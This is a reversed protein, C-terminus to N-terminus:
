YVRRVGDVGRMIATQIVLVIFDNSAAVGTLLHMATIAFTALLYTICVGICLNESIPGSQENLIILRNPGKRCPQLLGKPARRRARGRLCCARAVSLCIDVRVLLGDRSMAVRPRPRRRRRPVPIDAKGVRLFDTNNIRLRGIHM